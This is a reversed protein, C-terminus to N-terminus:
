EEFWKDLLADLDDECTDVNEDFLEILHQPHYKARIKPERIKVWLIDRFRQKFKLTYYLERFTKLLTEKLIFDICHIAPVYFHRKDYDYNYYNMMDVIYARVDPLRRLCDEQLNSANYLITAPLEMSNFEVGPFLEFYTISKFYKAIYIVDEWTMQFYDLLPLLSDNYTQMYANSLHNYIQIREYQYPYGVRGYMIHMEIELLLRDTSYEPGLQPIVENAITILPNNNDCDAM